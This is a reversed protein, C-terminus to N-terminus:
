RPSRGPRATGTSPSPSPRTAHPSSTPVAPWRGTCAMDHGVGAMNVGQKWSTGDWIDNWFFTGDDCDSDGCYDGSSWCNTASACGFSDTGCWAGGCGSGGPMEQWTKGNWAVGDSNFSQDPAACFTPSLCEIDRDPPQPSLRRWAKGNWKVYRSSNGAQSTLALCFSPGGCTVTGFYGSPKPLIRWAKGTWEEIFPDYGHGPKEGTALCFSAGTCSQVNITPPAPHAPAAQAMQVAQASLGTSLAAMVGAAIFLKRLRM